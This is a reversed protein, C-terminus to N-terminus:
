GKLAGATMGEIVYRQMFIYLIVMPLAVMIIAAALVPWNNSYQGKFLFLGTSLTRYRQSTLFLYPTVFDNWSGIAKLMFVTALIPKMLPAAIVLIYRYYSCGDMIAADDLERPVGKIFGVMIFISLPLGGIGWLLVVGLPSDYLGFFQMFYITAILSGPFFMSMLVFIYIKNAHKFHRRSLPFAAFASVVTTLTAALMTMVVTNIFRRMVELGEFAQVFNVWTDPSFLKIRTLAVPERAFESIPKLSVNILMFLPYLMMLALIILIIFVIIDGFLSRGNRSVSGQFLKKIM